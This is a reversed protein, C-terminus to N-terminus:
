AIKEAPQVFRGGSTYHGMRNFRCWSLQVEAELRGLNADDVTVLARRASLPRPHEFSLGRRDCSSLRVLSVLGPRGWEDLPTIRAFEASSAHAFVAPVPVNQPAEPASHAQGGPRVTNSKNSALRNLWGHPNITM